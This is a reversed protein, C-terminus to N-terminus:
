YSCKCTFISSLFIGAHPTSRFSPPLNLITIFLPWFPTVKSKYVQVGDFFMSCLINIPKVDGEKWNNKTSENNYKEIMEALNRMASEGEMIDVKDFSSNKIFKFSILSIFIENALLKSLYGIFPRYYLQKMVPRQKHHCSNEIKNKICNKNTCAKFRKGDCKGCCNTDVLNGYFVECGGTPCIDFKLLMIPEEYLDISALSKSALNSNEPCISKVLNLIEAQVKNTLNNVKSIRNIARLVYGVTKNTYDHTNLEEDRPFEYWFIRSILSEIDSLIKSSIENDEPFQKLCFIDFKCINSIYKYKLPNINEPIFLEEEVNNDNQNDDWYYNENIPEDFYENQDDDWYYNENIIPEDNNAKEYDNTTEIDNHKNITNIQSEWFAAEILRQRKSALENIEYEKLKQIYNSSM